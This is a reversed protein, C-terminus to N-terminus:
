NYEENELKPCVKCAQCADKSCIFSLNILLFSIFLISFKKKKGTGCNFGNMDDGCVKCKGHIFDIKEEDMSEELLSNGHQTFGIKKSNLM